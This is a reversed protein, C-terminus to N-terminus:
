KIKRLLFSLRWNLDYYEYSHDLNIIKNKIYHMYDQPSIEGNEKGSNMIKLQRIELKQDDDMLLKSHDLHHIFEDLEEFTTNFEERVEALKFIKIMSLIADKKASDHLTLIAFTSLQYFVLFVTIKELYEFTNVNNIWSLINEGGLYKM